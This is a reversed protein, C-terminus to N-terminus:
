WRMCNWCWRCQLFAVVGEDPYIVIVYMGAVVM